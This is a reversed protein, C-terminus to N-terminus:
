AGEIEVGKAKADAILKQLDLGHREAAAKLQALTAPRADQIQLAASAEADNQL